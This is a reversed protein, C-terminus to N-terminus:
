EEMGKVLKGLETIPGTPHFSSLLGTKTDATDGAEPLLLEIHRREGDKVIM